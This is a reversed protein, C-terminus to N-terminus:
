DCLSNPYNAIHEITVLIKMRAPMMVMMMVKQLKWKRCFVNDDEGNSGTKMLIKEMRCVKFMMNAHNEKTFLRM